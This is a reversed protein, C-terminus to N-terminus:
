ELLASAWRRWWCGRVSWLRMGLRRRQRVGRRRDLAWQASSPRASVDAGQAGQRVNARQAPSSPAQDDGMTVAIPDSQVWGDAQTWHWGSSSQASGETAQLAIEHRFVHWHENNLWWWWRSYDLVVADGKTAAEGLELGIEESASLTPVVSWEPDSRSHQGKNSDEGIAAMGGRPGTGDASAVQRLFEICCFTQEKAVRGVSAAAYSRPVRVGFGLYGGVDVDFAAGASKVCLSRSMARMKRRAEHRAEQVRLAAEACPLTAECEFYVIKTSAPAKAAAVDEIRRLGVASLVDVFSAETLLFSHDVCSRPLTVFARGGAKLQARMGVLMDFRRREHPVCNLVMSCVVADYPTSRGGDLDGGHPLAAFDFEEIRPNLSHLDIARVLLGPTNLLQTNVAGIELARLNDLKNHIHKLRRQVWRSVPNLATNLASAAQYQVVGGM